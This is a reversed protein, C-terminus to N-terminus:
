NFIPIKKKLSLIWEGGNDIAGDKKANEPHEKYWKGAYQLITDYVTILFSGSGCSIDAFKLKSIENPTKGEILKGVTNDVIYKVIYQPTYYVGGAKRM